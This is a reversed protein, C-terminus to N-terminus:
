WYLKYFDCQKINFRFYKHNSFRFDSIWEQYNFNNITLTGEGTFNLARAQNGCDIEHNNGNIVYDWEDINIGETYHVDTTSNFKYNTDFDIKSESISLDAWLDQFTNCKVNDEKLIDDRVNDTYNLDAASIATISILLIFLIITFTIIKNSKMINEDM